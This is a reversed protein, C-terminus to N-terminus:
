GHDTVILVMVIRPTTFDPHYFRWILGIVWVLWAGPKDHRVIVAVPQCIIHDDHRNERTTPWSWSADGNAGAHPAM